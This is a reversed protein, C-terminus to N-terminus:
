LSNRVIKKEMKIFIQKFYSLVLGSISSTLTQLLNCDQHKM